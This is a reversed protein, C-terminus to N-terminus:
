PHPEKRRPQTRPLSVEFTAGQGPQSHVHIEGAHREVIKRCIALGIGSGEYQGMGNLRQFPQFIREAYTEELGIGNDKVLITVFKQNETLGEKIEIVPTQGEQQFKIANGILNQLLQHMQIPDAQLTPLAGAIIQAHSSTIRGELDSLVEQMVANLDVARFPEGQTTVRSLSLLDTIMLRMRKSASLMRTFYDREEESLRDQLRETLREGFAQIKRLPEQLDHSAVFAFDQLERNSRELALAYEELRAETQKLASLDLIFCLYLTREEDVRAYGILVPVRSGDKRFYEKEYPTCAGRQDAEALGASDLALFEPPTLKVWDLSEAAVDEASYGLMNLFVNNAQDICGAANSFIIGIIDSDILRRLRTESRRLAEQDNRRATIDMLVAVAGNPEGAENFLPNVNGILFYEKGDDFVITEDFDRMARGTRASFHLPRDPIALEVGDRLPRYHTLHQWEESLPSLNSGPPMRLFQYAARNGTILQGERDHAIRVVAPVADMIAEIQANRARLDAESRALAQERESIERFLLNFPTVFGTVIYARYTLYYAAIKLFHGLMNNVDTVQDYGMFFAEAVINLFLAAFLLTLVQGDFARRMLWLYGGAAAFLLIIAWEVNIKFATLGAGETFAAPFARWTFITLLLFGSILTFGTVSALTLTVSPKVRLFLPALCLSLALVGRECLWLQTALNADTPFVGMGKFALTHLTAFGAAFLFAVGVFLLYGNNLYPRANWALVFITCAIVTSFIEALSHFLLYNEQALVWLGAYLGAAVTLQLIPRAIFKYPLTM